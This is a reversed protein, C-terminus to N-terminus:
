RFVPIFVLGVIAGFMMSKIIISATKNSIGVNNLAMTKVVLVIGALIGLLTGIKGITMTGNNFSVLVTSVFVLLYLTYENKLSFVNSM